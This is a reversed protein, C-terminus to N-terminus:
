GGSSQVERRNLVSAGGDHFFGYLHTKATTTMIGKMNDACGMKDTCEIKDTCGMIHLRHIVRTILTIYKHSPKM